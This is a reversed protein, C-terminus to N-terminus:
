PNKKVVLTDALKDHLAQKQQTFGAMAFGILGITSSVFKGWHRVAAQSVSIPNGSLDTVVIGLIMKGITAQKSSIEMLIFYLYKLAFLMLASSFLMLLSLLDAPSHFNVIINPIILILFGIIGGMTTLLGLGISVYSLSPIVLFSPDLLILFITIFGWIISSPVTLIVSDILYAFFRRWFGAYQRIFVQQTSGTSIPSQGSQFSQWSSYYSSDIVTLCQLIEPIDQPRNGPFPKILYDIFDALPNSIQSASNRWILEGTRSDESFQNPEKGTLLYVFTRGLAFFDSPPVAKGNIQEVPTYGPSVIGTVQQGALKQMFTQTVERATGFDILALQGDPKLM